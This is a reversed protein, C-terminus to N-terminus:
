SVRPIRPHHDTLQWYAATTAAATVVTAITDGVVGASWAAVFQPLAAEAVRYIAYDLLTAGVAVILALALVPWFSGRVLERSRGLSARWGTSEVIAPEFALFWWTFLVIGPVILLAAGALVGLCAVITILILTPWRAAADRLALLPTRPREEAGEPEVAIAAIAAGYALTAEVALVLAFVGL